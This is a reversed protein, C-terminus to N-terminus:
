TFYRFQFHVSYMNVTLPNLTFRVFSVSPIGGKLFLVSIGRSPQFAACGPSAYSKLSNICYMGSFCKLCLCLPILILWSKLLDGSDSRCSWYPAVGFACSGPINEEFVHLPWTVVDMVSQFCSSSLWAQGRPGSFRYIYDFFFFCVILCIRSTPAVDGWAVYSLAAMDGCLWRPLWPRRMDATWTWIPGFAGRFVSPDRPVAIRIHYAKRHPIGFPFFPIWGNLLFDSAYWIWM